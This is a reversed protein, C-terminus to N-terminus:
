GGSVPPIFALTDGDRLVVAPGTYEENVATMPPAMYAALAAYRGRLTEWVDVPRAGDALELQLEDMGTIDRLVAFLLLRVRM